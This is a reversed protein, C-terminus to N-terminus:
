STECEKEVLEIIGKIMEIEQQHEKLKMEDVGDILGANFHETRSDVAVHLFGDLFGFLCRGEYKQELRKIEELFRPTLLYFVETGDSGYVSFKQNFSEDEVHFRELEPLESFWGRPNGNDLFEKERVVMWGQFDKKMPVRLYLGQFRTVVTTTKGSRVVDQVHVDSFEFPIEHYRGSIYDDSYFRDYLAVLQWSRIQEETFGHEFDVKLDEFEKALVEKLFQNKYALLYRVKAKSYMVSLVIVDIVFSVMLVPFTGEFMLFMAIFLTIGILILAAIGFKKLESKRISELEQFM